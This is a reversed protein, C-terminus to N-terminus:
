RRVFDDETAAVGAITPSGIVKQKGAAEFVQGRVMM